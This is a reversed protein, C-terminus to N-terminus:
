NCDSSKTPIQVVEIGAPSYDETTDRYRLQSSVSQIPPSFAPPLDPQVMLHSPSNNSTTNSHHGKSTSVSVLATECTWALTVSINLMEMTISVISAPYM